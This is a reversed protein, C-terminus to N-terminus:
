AETQKRAKREAEFEEHVGREHERKEQTLREQESKLASLSEARIKRATEQLKKNPELKEGQQQRHSLMLLEEEITSKLSSEPFDNIFVTVAKAARHNDGANYSARATLLLVVDRLPSDPFLRNLQEIKEIALLYDNRQHAEFAKVFVAADDSEAADALGSSLLLTTLLLVLLGPIGSASTM